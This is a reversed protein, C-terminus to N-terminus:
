LGGRMRGELLWPLHVAAHPVSGHAEVGMWNRRHQRVRTMRPSQKASTLAGGSGVCACFRSIRNASATTSNSLARSWVMTAVAIGRMMSCNCPSGNYAHTVVAYMSVEVTLTGM